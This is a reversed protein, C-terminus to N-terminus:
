GPHPSPDARSSWLPDQQPADFLDFAERDYKKLGEPDNDPVPASMHLDGHAKEPPDLMTIAPRSDRVKVKTVFANTKVDDSSLPKGNVVVNDFVVSEVRHTEDFGRLDVRLPEATARINNFTVGDIHGRENDRTWVAKGIWLSILRPSEEIRLNEFRVNSIRASTSSVRIVAGRHIPNWRTLSSTCRASRKKPDSAAPTTPSCELANLGARVGHNQSRGGVGRCASLIM